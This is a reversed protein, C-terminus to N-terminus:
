TSILTNFENMRIPLDKNYEQSVKMCVEYSIKQAFASYSFFIFLIFFFKINM